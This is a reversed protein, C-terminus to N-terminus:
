TIFALTVGEADYVAGAITKARGFVIFPFILLFLVYCFM